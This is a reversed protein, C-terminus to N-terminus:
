LAVQKPKRFLSAQGVFSHLLNCYYKAEQEYPALMRYKNATIWQLCNGNSVFTSHSLDARNQTSDWLTPQATCTPGKLPFMQGWVHGPHGYRWHSQSRCKTRQPKIVRLSCWLPLDEFLPVKSLHLVKSSVPSIQLDFSSFIEFCTERTEKPQIEKVPEKAPSLNM